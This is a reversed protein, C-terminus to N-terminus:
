AARESENVATTPHAALGLGDAQADDQPDDQGGPVRAMARNGNRGAERDQASGNNAGETAHQRLAEIMSAPSQGDFRAPDVQSGDFWHALREAQERDLPTFEEDVDIRGARILASDLAARDNTTMITVLGHPTWVGDLANLMAAVSTKEPEDSREKSAHFVDVDELLLVSRPEIAGVLGMLDADTALDGLPLYYTPMGFHNALARAVSTKGTGPAGHFLYGRHWPQCLRNYDDEAALFMELDRTLRELQRDKLVVSELTQDIRQSDPM